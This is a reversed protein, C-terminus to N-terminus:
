YRREAHIDAFSFLRNSFLNCLFARPNKEVTDGGISSSNNGSGHARAHYAAAITDRGFATGRRLIAERYSTTNRAWNIASFMYPATTERGTAPNLVKPLIFKMKGDPSEAMDALVQDINVM